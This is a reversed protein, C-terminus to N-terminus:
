SESAPQQPAFLWALLGFFPVYDITEATTKVRRLILPQFISFVIPDVCFALYSRDTQVLAWFDTWDAATAVFSSQYIAYGVVASAIAGFIRPFLSSPPSSRAAEDNSDRLETIALYPALFANTLNIGLLLWSGVLAPRAIRRRTDMWLAPLMAFIWAEVINFIALRPPIVYPADANGLLESLYFFHYSDEIVSAFDADGAPWGPTMPIFAPVPLGNAQAAAGFVMLYWYFFGVSFFLGFLAWDTSTSSDNSLDATDLFDKQNKSFLRSLSVQQGPNNELHITNGRNKCRSM